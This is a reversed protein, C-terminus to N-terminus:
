LAECAGPTNEPDLAMKQIWPGQTAETRLLSWPYKRAGPVKDPEQSGQIAGMASEVIDCKIPGLTDARQGGAWRRRGGGGLQGEAAEAGERERWERKGEEGRIGGEVM